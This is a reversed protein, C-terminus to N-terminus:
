AFSRGVVWRQPLLVFSRKAEPLKAVELELGQAKAADSQRCNIRSCALVRKWPIVVTQALDALQLWNLLRHEITSM